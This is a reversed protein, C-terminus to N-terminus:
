DYTGAPLKADVRMTMGRSIGLSKSLGGRIELVYLAKGESKRATESLPLAREVFSVVKKQADLFIMDLEVYTNKMWFSRDSEEPFIFLMARDDALEKRYMLGIERASNTAAIEAKFSGHRVGNADQFEVRVTEPQSCATALLVLM